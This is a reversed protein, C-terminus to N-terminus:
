GAALLGDEVASRLVNSLVDTLWLTYESRDGVMAHTMRLRSESLESAVGELLHRARSRKARICNAPLDIGSRLWQRVQNKTSFLHEGLIQGRPRDSPLGASWLQQNLPQPPHHRFHLREISINPLVKKAWTACVAVVPVGYGALM